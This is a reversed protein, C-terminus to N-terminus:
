RQFLGNISVWDTKNMFSDTILSDLAAKTDQVGEQERVQGMGDMMRLSTGLGIFFILLIFIIALIKKSITNVTPKGKEM